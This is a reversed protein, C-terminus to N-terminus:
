GQGNEEGQIPGMELLACFIGKEQFRRRHKQMKERTEGDSFVSSYIMYQELWHEDWMSNEDLFEPATINLGFERNLWKTYAIAEM